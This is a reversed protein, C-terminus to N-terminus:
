TLDAELWQSWISYTVVPVFLNANLQLELLTRAEHPFAHHLPVSLTHRYEYAKAKEGKM